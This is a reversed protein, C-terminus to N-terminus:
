CNLCIDNSSELWWAWWTQSITSFSFSPLKQHISSMFIKTFRSWIIRDLPWGRSTWRPWWLYSCCTRRTQWAVARPTALIQTSWKKKRKWLTPLWTSLYQRYTKSTSQKKVKCVLPHDKRIVNINHHIFSKLSLFQVVFDFKAGQRGPLLTMDLKKWNNEIIAGLFLKFINAM